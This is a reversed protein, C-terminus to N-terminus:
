LEILGSRLGRTVAETRSTAGLKGLISRIHFKITHESIELKAAIEKNGLGEALLRLVEIERATLPEGQYEDGDSPPALFSDFITLGSEISRIAQVIQSAPADTQLIGVPGARRILNFIAPDPEPLLLLIRALDLFESLWERIAAAEMQPPLDILLIDAPTESMLSRLFPFTSAIGAAHIDTESEVTKLLFDQRAKSGSMILIDVM